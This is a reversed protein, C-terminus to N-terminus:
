PKCDELTEMIGEIALQQQDGFEWSIFNMINLVEVASLQPNAPMGVEVSTDSSEKLYASGFAIVCALEPGMNTVFRSQIIGPYLDEFGKGDIGHCRSCNANYLAKGQTYPQTCTSFVIAASFLCFILPLYKKM